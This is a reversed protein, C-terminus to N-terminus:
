KAIAGGQDTSSPLSLFPFLWPFVVPPPKSTQTSKGGGAPHSLGLQVDRYVHRERQKAGQPNGDLAQAPFGAIVLTVALAAAGLRTTIHSLTM